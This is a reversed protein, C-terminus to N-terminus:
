RQPGRTLERNQRHRTLLQSFPNRLTPRGEPEASRREAWDLSPIQTQSQRMKAALRTIREPDDGEQGLEERNVYWDAGHRARSAEVYSTEHSTQWGGTLVLARDYTAGQARYIHQAYALRLKALDEGTLTTERGTGDFRVLVTETDADLQLVIGRSGNEVRPEEPPHHQEITAIRDGARVGYHTGPIPLEEAGLQGREIRFTQARANLRDIEVNSADSLLAVSEVTHDRTLRAWTQVAREIAEDRTPAIHLRGRAQYHAMARDTRGARLDTWARREGQDNTRHVSTLEAHPVLGALRDFMGGAGISPLQAEDGILVLKAGGRHVTDTLAALRSTDAVGAEDLYVVTGPDLTLRGHEVRQIFADITLTKEALAPTDHGLRQATSGSVAVGYTDHDAQQEALAAADIVVGKGTGAPGILVAAREPGTLTAVAAAQDADLPHGIRETVSTLADERHQERPSNRQRTAALEAFRQELRAERDRQRRTTFRGDRLGVVAGSEIMREALRLAENPHFEGVTQELSIADLESRGFTAARETLKADVREAPAARDVTIRSTQAQEVHEATHQWARDLDGRNVLKKRSKNEQKVRRLEGREPARGWKARFREAAAAVQRSRASFADILARPHGTLEFYRGDRGTGAEIEYGAAELDQALASRYYAGTARASRFIPRSAVAVTRGDQRIATTIVVHSHLQPDPLDDPEVGRATTHRYEAAVLDAALEEIVQGDVRRRVVPVSCLLHQVTKTVAKSHAAEIRERTSDDTLAWEISVSKPASFTIDIGGGREGDAGAKRLWGGAPHRGEMLAVFDDGEVAPGHIGLRRLTAPSGHWRGAAQTPEGEPTLYYAGPEPAVTKSELYRAYGGGKAAGISQATMVGSCSGFGTRAASIVPVSRYRRAGGHM